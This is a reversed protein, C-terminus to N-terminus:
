HESSYAGEKGTKGKIRNKLANIKMYITEKHVLKSAAISSSACAHVVTLICQVCM